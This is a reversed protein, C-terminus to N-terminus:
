EYRYVGAQVKTLKGKETLRTLARSVSSKPRDTEDALEATTRTKEDSHRFEELIEVEVSSAIEKLIDYEFALQSLQEVDLVAQSIHGTATNHSRVRLVGTRELWNREHPTVTGDIPVIKTEDDIEFQDLETDM